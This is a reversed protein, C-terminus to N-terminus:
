TTPSPTYGGCARVPLPPYRPFRPDTRSLGCRTFRSGKASVVVEAHRCTACLGAEPGPQVREARDNMIVVM